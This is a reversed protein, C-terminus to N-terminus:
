SRCSEPRILLVPVPSEHLVRFAVSGMLLKKFGTYGHTAMVIMDVNNKQTFDIIADAPAAGKVVVTEAKIGKASLANQMDALYRQYKDVEENWFAQFDFEETFGSDETALYNLPLKMEVVSLLVVAGVHGDKVLAELHSLTCEALGSSDLPVLVKKYM